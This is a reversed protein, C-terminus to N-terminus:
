YNSGAGGGGFSGGGFKSPADAGPQNMSQQIIENFLIAEANEGSNTKVQSSSLGYKGKRLFWIIFISLIVVVGGVLTLVVEAPMKHYYNRITFGGAIFVLNGIWLVQRNKTRLAWILYFIPISVTFFWFLWFFPIEASDSLGALQANGERVVYYNGAAYLLILSLSKLCQQSTHYYFKKDKSQWKEALYYSLAAVLMLVFPVIMKGVDSSTVQLFLFAMFCIWTIFAVFPDGYRILFPVSVFGSILFYVWLESEFGLFTSFGLAFASLASYQFLNDTGARYMDSKIILKELLIILGVGWILSVIGVGYASEFLSTSIFLGMISTSASIAIWSFIFLGIKAFVSFKKFGIPFAKSINKHVEPSLAGDDYWHDIRNKIYKNRVWAENFGKINLSRM